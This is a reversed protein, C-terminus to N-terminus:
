LCDFKPFPSGIDSNTNQAILMQLLSGEGNGFPRAVILSIGPFSRQSEVYRIQAQEPMHDLGAADGLARGPGIERQGCGRGADAIHLIRDPRRKEDAVPLAHRRGLGAPRQQLV